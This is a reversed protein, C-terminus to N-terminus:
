RCTFHVPVSSTGSEGQGDAFAILTFSKENEGTFIANITSFDIDNDERSFSLEKTGKDRDLVVPVGAHVLAVQYGKINRSVDLTRLGLDQEFRLKIKSSERATAHSRTLTAMIEKNRLTGKCLDASASQTFALIGILSLLTKKM